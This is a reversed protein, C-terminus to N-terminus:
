PQPSNERAVHFNLLRAGSAWHLKESLQDLRGQARELM